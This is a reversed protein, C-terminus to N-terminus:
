ILSSFQQVNLSAFNKAFVIDETWISVFNIKDPITSTFLDKKTRFIRISIDFDELYEKVLWLFKQEISQQVWIENIHKCFTRKLYTIVAYLDSDAM